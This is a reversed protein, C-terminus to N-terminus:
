KLIMNKMLLTNYNICEKKRKIKHVLPLPLLPLKTNIQQVNPQIKCTQDESCIINPQFFNSIKIQAEPLESQYPM